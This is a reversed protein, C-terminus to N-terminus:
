HNWQSKEWVLYVCCFSIRINRFMQMENVDELYLIPSLIFSWNKMQLVLTDQISYALHRLFDMWQSFVGFWVECNHITKYTEEQGASQGPHSSVNKLNPLLCNGNQGNGETSECVASYSFLEKGKIAKGLPQKLVEYIRYNYPIM